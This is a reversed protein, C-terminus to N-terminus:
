RGIPTMDFGLTLTAEPAAAAESSVAIRKRAGVIRDAGVGQLSRNSNSLINPCPPHADFIGGRDQHAADEVVAAIAHRGAV